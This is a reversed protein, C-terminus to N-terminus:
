RLTLSTTAVTTDRKEGSNDPEKASQLDFSDVLSFCDSCFHM